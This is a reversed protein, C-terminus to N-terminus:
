QGFGGLARAVLLILITAILLHVVWTGMGLGLLEKQWEQLRKM